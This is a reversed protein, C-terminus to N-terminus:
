VIRHVNGVKLVTGMGSPLLLANDTNWDFQDSEAVQAPTCMTCAPNTGVGNIADYDGASVTIVEYLM